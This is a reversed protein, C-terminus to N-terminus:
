KRAGKMFRDCGRCAHFMRVKTPSSSRLAQAEKQWAQCSLEPIEGLAPCTIKSRMLVMRIQKEVRTMDGPYIKTIVQSVVAGSYGLETAVKNQSTRDCAEVLSVVFAPVEGWADKAREMRASM